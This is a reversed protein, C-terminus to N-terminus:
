MGKAALAQMTTQNASALKVKAKFEGQRAQDNEVASGDPNQQFRSQMTAIESQSLSTDLPVGALLSLNMRQGYDLPKAEGSAAYEMIKNQIAMYVNPYMNQLADMHEQSLTGQAYEDLVSMPNDAIQVAQGFAQLEYDSPTWDIKPSFPSSPAPERPVKTYLYELAKRTGVTLSQSINPAGGESLPSILSGVASEFSDNNVLIERIKSDVKEINEITMKRNSLDPETDPDLLRWVASMSYIRKVEPKKAGSLIAPIQDIKDATKKIAREAFLLGAANPNRDIFGKLLKGGYNDLAAGGLAGAVAGGAGGVFAGGVGGLAGLMTAMLNVKRSGQVYEKNFSDLVNRDKIKDLFGEGTMAELAEFARRTNIDPNKYGMRRIAQESSGPNLKKIPALAAEADALQKRLTETKNVLEPVLEGSIDGRKSRELQDKAQKLRSVEDVFGGGTIQSYKNLLEDKLEGGPTLIKDLTNMARQTDGFSKSMQELVQAREAMATMQAAYDASQDKILKSVNGQFSKLANTYADGFEGARQDFNIDRRVNKLIQRVDTYPIANPLQESIDNALTDLAKAARKSSEGIKLPVTEAQVNKIFQLLDEKSAAGPIQALMEDAEDSMRGLVAKENDLSFVIDDALQRPARVQQLDRLSNKYAQQTEFEANRLAEKAINVQDAQKMVADDIRNKISELAEAGNVKEANKIYYEIDKADVGTFTKATRRALEQITTDQEGILRATEDSVKKGLGLFEKGLGSAGGFFAGIGVGALMSDAAASPDGLAAETVAYPLTTVAGEVATGSMKAVIERAAKNLTRKGVEEGAEVALKKALHAAVKEGAATGAKWIPAGTLFSAGFGGIGGLTNALEHESKLAEKKAVELPDATKDFILEPLGLLAEDAFQGLGVKIAGSLGKNSDVYERITRQTPTEVQYGARIAEVVNEAPLKGIQGDPSRVSVQSGAAFSHSGSLLANQLGEPSDVAEKQKTKTNYLDM